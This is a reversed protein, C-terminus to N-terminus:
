FGENVQLQLLKQSQVQLQRERVTLMNKLADLEPIRDEIDKIADQKETLFLQVYTNSSQMGPADTRVYKEGWSTNRISGELIILQVSVYSKLTKRKVEIDEKPKPTEESKSKPVTAKTEATMTHVLKAKSPQSKKNPKKKDNENVDIPMFHEGMDDFVSRWIEFFEIKYLKVEPQIQQYGM